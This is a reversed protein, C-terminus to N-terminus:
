QSNGYEKENQVKGANLPYISDPPASFLDLKRLSDPFTLDVSIYVTKTIM